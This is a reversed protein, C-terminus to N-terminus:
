TEVLEALRGAVDMGLAHCASFTSEDPVYQVKVGDGLREVCMDDLMANLHRVSEGSWGYSGFAAGVLNRPKLGKLYTMADALTPFLGNNLTPSGVLLAGADLIETAVDSRHHAKLCLLRPTAGGEALGEAIARAMRETSGWMSDYLVVAKKTPKQEAWSAYAGVMRGVDKRWIPGHDPAITEFTLGLKQVREILKRV